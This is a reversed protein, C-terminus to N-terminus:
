KNKKKSLSLAYSKFHAYGRYEGKKYRFLNEKQVVIEYREHLFCFSIIVFGLDSIKAFVRNHSDSLEKILFGVNGSYEQEIPLRFNKIFADYVDSVEQAYERFKEIEALQEISLSNIDNLNM